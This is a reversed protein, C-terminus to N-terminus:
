VSKETAKKLSPIETKTKFKLYKCVRKCYKTMELEFKPPSQLTVAIYVGGEKKKGELNPINTLM